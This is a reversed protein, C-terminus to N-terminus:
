RGHRAILRFCHPQGVLIWFGSVRFGAVLPFEKPHLIRSLYIRMIFVLSAKLEPDEQKPKGLAPVVPM